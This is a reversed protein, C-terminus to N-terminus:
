PLEKSNYNRVQWASDLSSVTSAICPNLLQQSSLVGPHQVAEQNGPGPICGEQGGPVLRGELSYATGGIEAAERDKVM